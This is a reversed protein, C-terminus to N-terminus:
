LHGGFNRRGLRGRNLRDRAGERTSPRQSSQENIKVHFRAASRAEMEILEPLEIVSSAATVPDEAWMRCEPMITQKGARDLSVAQDAVEKVDAGTNPKGAPHVSAVTKTLPIGLLELRRSLVRAVARIGAVRWCRLSVTIPM